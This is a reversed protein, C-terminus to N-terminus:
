QYLFFFRLYTSPVPVFLNAHNHTKILFQIYFKEM